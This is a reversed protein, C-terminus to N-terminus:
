PVIRIRLIRLRPPFPYFTMVIGQLAPWAPRPPNLPFSLFQQFFPCTGSRAEEVHDTVIFPGSARIESHRPGPTLVHRASCLQLRKSLRRSPFCVPVAPRGAGSHGHPTSPTVHGARRAISTRDEDSERHIQPQFHLTNTSHISLHNNGQSSESWAVSHWKHIASARVTLQRLHERM